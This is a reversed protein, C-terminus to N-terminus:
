PCLAYKIIPDLNHMQGALDDGCRYKHPSVCGKSSFGATFMLRSKSTFYGGRHLGSTDCFIILGKKGMVKIIDDRPIIQEVSGPSPYSGAPPDRPFLKGWKGMYHSQMVYAFAEKEDGVDNLYLFVKCEKKDEPDRHWRQSAVALVDKVPLVMSLDFINLKSCMEMYANVVDLIRRDLAFKLFPNKLHIVPTLGMLYFMFPKAAKKEGPQKQLEEVYEQLSGLIKEGPWLDDIHIISIGNQKLESVIRNQLETLNAPHVSYMKRPEKNLIFFWILWLNRIAYYARRRVLYNAYKVLNIQTM